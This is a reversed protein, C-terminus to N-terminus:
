VYHSQTDCWIDEGFRKVALKWLTERSWTKMRLASLEVSCSMKESLRSYKVLIMHNYRLMDNYSLIFRNSSIILWLYSVLFCLGTYGLRNAPKSGIVKFHILKCFLHLFYSRVVKHVFSYHHLYDIFYWLRQLRQPTWLSTIVWIM